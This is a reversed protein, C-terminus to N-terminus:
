LSGFHFHNVASATFITKKWILINSSNGELILQKTNFKIGRKIRPLYIYIKSKLHQFHRPLKKPLQLSTIKFIFHKQM